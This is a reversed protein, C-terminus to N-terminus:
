RHATAAAPVLLSSTQTWLELRSIGEEGVKILDLARKSGGKSLGVKLVTVFWPPEVLLIEIEPQPGNQSINRAYHARIAERGVVEYGDPGTIVADEVFLDAAGSDGNRVRAFLEAVLERGATDTTSANPNDM